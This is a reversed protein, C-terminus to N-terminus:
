PNPILDDIQHLEYRDFHHIEPNPNGSPEFARCYRPAEAVVREERDRCYAVVPNKFWQMFVGNKCALCTIPAQEINNNNNKAM